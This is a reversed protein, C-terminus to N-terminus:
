NFETSKFTHDDNTTFIHGENVLFNIADDILSSNVGPLFSHIDSRKLGCSQENGHKRFVNLVSRQVDSFGAHIPNTDVQTFHGSTDMRSFNGNEGHALTYNKRKELVLADNIVELFHKDIERPDTITKIEFAIIFPKKDDYRVQGVVRIYTNEMVSPAPMYSGTGDNDNKWLQVEVPGGKSFDDILYVNKTNGEEVNILMGYVTITHVKQRQIILGEERRTLNVIQSLTVHVHNLQDRDNFEPQQQQGQNQNIDFQTTSFFDGM